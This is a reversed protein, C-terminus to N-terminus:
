ALPPGRSTEVFAPGDALPQELLTERIREQRSVQIVVAFSRESSNFSRSARCSNCGSDDSSQPANKSNSADASQISRTSDNQPSGAHHHTISLSFAHALLFLLALAVTRRRENRRMSNFLDLRSVRSKDGYRFRLACFANLLSQQKLTM